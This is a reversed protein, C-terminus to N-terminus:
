LIDFINFATFLKLMITLSYYAVGRLYV